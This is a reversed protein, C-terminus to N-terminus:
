RLITPSANVQLTLSKLINLYKNVYDDLQLHGDNSFIIKWNFINRKQCALKLGNLSSFDCKITM